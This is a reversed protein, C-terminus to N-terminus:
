RGPSDVQTLAVMHAPIARKKELKPDPDRMVDGAVWAIDQHHRYAGELACREIERMLPIVEKSYAPLDADTAYQLYFHPSTRWYITLATALSCEPNRVAKLLKQTGEDWNYDEVFAHLAIADMKAPDNTPKSLKFFKRLGALTAKQKETCRIEHLKPCSTITVERLEPSATIDISQAGCKVLTISQLWPQESLDLVASPANRCRFYSLKTGRLLLLKLRKGGCSLSEFHRLNSVDVTRLETGEVSLRELKTNNQVDLEQLPNHECWLGRLALNQSLDLTRIACHNASLRELKPLGRPDLTDVRPGQPTGPFLWNQLDLERLLPLTGLTLTKLRPGTAGDRYHGNDNWGCSLTELKHLMSVDLSEIPTSVCHLTRLDPCARLDLAALSAGSCLLQELNPPLALQTLTCHEINLSRLAANGIVHLDLAINFVRLAELRTVRSADLRLPGLLACPLYRRYDDFLRISTVFGESDFRIPDASDFPESMLRMLLEFRSLHPELPLLKPKLQEALDEFFPLEDPLFNM